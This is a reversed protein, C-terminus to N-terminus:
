TPTKEQAQACSLCAAAAPLAELRALPIPQDCVECRGYNGNAIRALARDIDEIEAKERDDLRALLRIFIEDQAREVMESEVDTELWLLEDEIQAVTRFLERRQALLKKRLEKIPLM